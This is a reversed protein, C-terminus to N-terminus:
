ADPDRRLLAEWGAQEFHHDHAQACRIGREHMVVFSICDTLSWEQDPRRAHLSLGAELLHSSAPILETNEDARIRALLLHVQPRNPLSSSSNETEWLVYETVLLPEHVAQAWAQARRFLADLPHLLALLYGTDVLIM